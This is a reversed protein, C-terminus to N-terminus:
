EQRIAEIPNLRSARWAPYSGGAMGVVVSITIALIILYPSIIPQYTLILGLNGGIRFGSTSLLYSIPIGTIIGLIGGLFGIIGSRTLYVLLVDRSKMGLTKMIGIERIRQYVIIMSTSMIGLVAVFLSISVVATLLFSISYTIQLVTNVIQTVTIVRVSNGLVASILNALVNVNEVSTSRVFIASYTSRNLIVIAEDFPLFISNDADALPTFGSPSLIGSTYLIYNLGNPLHVVVPDGPKIVLSNSNGTAIDYGVVALPVKGKPYERGAILQYSGLVVSLNDIGIITIPFPQGNVYVVASGEVAPYKSAVYPLSSIINLENQTLPVGRGPLVIITNPGLSYLSNSISESIGETTSVLIIMSGIGITVSFITLITIVKRSFLDKISLLIIDRLKM